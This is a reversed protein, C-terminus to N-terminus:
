KLPADAYDFAALQFEVTPENTRILVLADLSVTINFAVM